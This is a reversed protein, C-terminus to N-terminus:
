QLDGPFYSQIQALIDELDNSQHVFDRGETPIVLLPCLTWSNIWEDYLRNLEALYNISIQREYDRGRLAIREALVGVPAQLYILLDPPPLFDRIGVYLNQYCRYDRETMRQQQYLNRAFIEADEYISRDQIVPGPHDVLRRHHQLRRSLFFVQSHFSWREMDAYFDSLYPNDEVAEFFPQWGLREAALETLSSKGVGINGAVAVFYKKDNTSQQGQHYNM